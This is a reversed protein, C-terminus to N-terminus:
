WDTSATTPFRRCGVDDVVHTPVVSPPPVAAPRLREARLDGAGVGREEHQGEYAQEDRGDEGQGVAILRLARDGLLGDEDRDGEHDAVDDRQDVLEGIRVARESPM